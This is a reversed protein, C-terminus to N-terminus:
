MRAKLWALDEGLYRLLTLHGDHETLIAEVGPIREALWVGHGYPVMLDQRGQRLRVPTRIETVAYGWPALFALGDDWWGDDTDRQGHVMAAIVDSAFQGSLYERDVPPLITSWSVILGSADLELVERRDAALKQRATVPDALLLKTDEVNLEGTGEFYDLGEADYPAVAALSVVAPVLDELLAACALAHPGGGSLGIVGLRDIGLQGAIARVDAACDAITRGEHRDSGGYGPRDYALLRVGAAAATRSEDESVLGSSPTGHHYLVPVGAPDGGEHVELRRGDPTRIAHARM